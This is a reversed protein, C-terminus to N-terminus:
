TMAEWERAARAETAHDPLSLHLLLSAMAGMPDFGCLRLQCADCYWDWLGPRDSPVVGCRGRDM